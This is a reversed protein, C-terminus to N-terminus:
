FKNHQELAQALYLIEGRKSHDHLATNEDRVWAKVVGVVDALGHLSRKRPQAVAM